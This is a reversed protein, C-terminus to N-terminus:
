FDEGKCVIVLVLCENVRVDVEYVKVGCFWKGFIFLIFCYFLKFENDVFFSFMFSKVGFFWVM